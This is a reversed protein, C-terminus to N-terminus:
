NATAIGSLLSFACRLNCDNMGNRTTFEKSADQWAVTSAVASISSSINALTEQEWRFVYAESEDGLVRWPGGTSDDEHSWGSIGISLRLRRDDPTDLKGKCIQYKQSGHLPLLGVDQVDKTFADLTKATSGRPGCMGFFLCAALGGDSLTGLPGLVTAAAPAGLGHLGRLSGIKADTLPLALSSLVAGSSPGGVKGRRERRVEDNKRPFSEETFAHNAAKSIARAIRSEEGAVMFSPLRLHAALRSIFQRSYAQYAELSLVLLIMCHILLHRKESDMQALTVAPSVSTTPTGIQNATTALTSHTDPNCGLM